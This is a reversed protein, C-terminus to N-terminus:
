FHVSGKIKSIYRYKIGQLVVPLATGGGGGGWLLIYM